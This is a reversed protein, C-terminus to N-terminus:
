WGQRRSSKDRDTESEREREREYFILLLVWRAQWEDSLVCLYILVIFVLLRKPYDAAKGTFM